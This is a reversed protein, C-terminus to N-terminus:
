MRCALAMFNSETIVCSFLCPRWSRKLSPRNLSVPWFGIRMCSKTLNYAASNMLGVILAKNTLQACRDERDIDRLQRPQRPLPLSTARLSCRRAM